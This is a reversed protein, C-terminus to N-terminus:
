KDLPILLGAAALGAPISMGYEIFGPIMMKRMFMLSQKDLPMSFFLSALLVTSMSFNNV